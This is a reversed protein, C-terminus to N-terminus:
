QHKIRYVQQELNRYAAQIQECIALQPSIELRLARRLLLSVQSLQKSYEHLSSANQEFHQIKADLATLSLGMRFGDVAMTKSLEELWEMVQKQDRECTALQILQQAKLKALELLEHCRKRRETVLNLQETVYAREKIRPRDESELLADIAACVQSVLEFKEEAAIARKELVALEAEHSNDECLRQLLTDSETYFENVTEHLRLSNARVLAQANVRTRFDHVANALEDALTKLPALQDHSHHRQLFDVVEAIEAAQDVVEETRASLQKHQRELQRSEDISEGVDDLTALWKEGPGTIWNLLERIADQQNATLKQVSEPLEEPPKTVDINEEPKEATYSGNNNNPDPISPERIEVTPSVVVSARNRNRPPLAPATSSSQLESDLVRAMPDGDEFVRSYRGYTPASLEIVISHDKQGFRVVSPMSTPDCKAIYSPNAQFHDNFSKALDCWIAPPFNYGFGDALDVVNVYKWLKTRPCLTTKFDYNELLIDLSMRQQDFFKEPEVIVAHRIKFALANQCAKLIIRLAKVPVRTADVLVIIGNHGGDFSKVAYALLSCIFNYVGLTDKANLSGLEKGRFCNSNLIIQILSGSIANGTVLMSNRNAYKPGKHRRLSIM